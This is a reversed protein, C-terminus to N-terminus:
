KIEKDAEIHKIERLCREMTHITHAYREYIQVARKLYNLFDPDDCYVSASGNYPKPILECHLNNM